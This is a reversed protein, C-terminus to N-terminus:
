APGPPTPRRRKSRRHPLLPRPDDLWYRVRAHCACFYGDPLVVQLARLPPPRRAYSALILPHLPLLAELHKPHVEVFTFAVGDITAKSSADFRAGEEIQEALGTIIADHLDENDTGLVVLEPHDYTVPLGVTVVCSPKPTGARGPSSALTWGDREIDALMSDFLADHRADRRHPPKKAM